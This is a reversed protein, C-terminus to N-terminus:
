TTPIITINKSHYVKLYPTNSNQPDEMYHFVFENLENEEYDVSTFNVLLLDINDGFTPATASQHLVSVASGVVAGTLDFTINSSVPTIHSGIQYDLDFKIPAVTNVLIASNIIELTDVRSDLGTVDGEVGGLRGDLDIVDQELTLVDGLAETLDTDILDIVDVLENHRNKLQNIDDDIVKNIRPVPKTVISVKDDFTVKLQEM